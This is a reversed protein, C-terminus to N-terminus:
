IDNYTIKDNMCIIIQRCIHTHTHLSPSLSTSKKPEGVKNRRAYFNCPTCQANEAITPIISRASDLSLNLSFFYMSIKFNYYKIGKQTHMHVHTYINIM